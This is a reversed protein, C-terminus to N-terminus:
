VPGGVVTSGGGSLMYWGIIKEDLVRLRKAVTTCLVKLLSPSSIKEIDLLGSFVSGDIVLCDAGEDHAVSDASRPRRDVLAMEGFIDGRGLIALAEEGAGPINKSIRVEGDLILFLKDGPTGELFITEGAAFREARSLTAMFNAEMHTLGIELFLDRKTRSDISLPEGSAKPTGVTSGAGSDAQERAFYHALMRNTIRLKKSVSNWTAWYLAIEFSRHEQCIERLKPADFLVLEGNGEAVVDTSRSGGDIFNTEGFLEGPKLRALKFTGYPTERQAKLEGRLVGYLDSRTDGHEVVTQGEVTRMVQAAEALLDFQDLSFHSLSSLQRLTDPTTV